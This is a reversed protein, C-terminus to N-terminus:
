KIGPWSQKIMYLINILMNFAVIGISVWGTMQKVDKDAVYDTFVLCTYIVALICWENFLELINFGYHAFPLVYGVYLIMLGSMFLLLM